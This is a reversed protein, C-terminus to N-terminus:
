LTEVKPAPAVAELLGFERALVMIVRDRIRYVSARSVHLKRAIKDWPWREIYRLRVLDQEEQPLEKVVREIVMADHLEAEHRLYWREQPSSTDGAGTGANQEYANSIPATPYRIVTLGYAYLKGEIIPLIRDFATM